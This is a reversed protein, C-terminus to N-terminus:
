EAKVNPWGAALHRIAEEPVTVGDLTVTDRTDIQRALSVWDLDLVMSVRQGDALLLVVAYRDDTELAVGFETSVEDADFIHAACVTASNM